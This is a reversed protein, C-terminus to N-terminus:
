DLSYAIPLVIQVKVPPKPVRGLDRITQLVNEDLLRHGSSSVVGLDTVRGSELIMFSVTVRGMYGKRKAELPYKLRKFILDRLYAFHGDLYGRALSKITDGGLTRHSESGSSAHDQENGKEESAKLPSDELVAAAPVAAAAEPQPPVAFPKEAPSSCAVSPLRKSPREKQVRPPAKQRIKREVPEGMSTESPTWGHNLLLVVQPKEEDQEYWLLSCCLGSALVGHIMFSLLMGLTLFRNEQKIKERSLKQYGVNKIKLIGEMNM